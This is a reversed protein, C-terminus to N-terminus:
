NAVKKYKARFIITISGKIDIGKTVSFRSRQNSILVYSVAAVDGSPATKNRIQEKESSVVNYGLSGEVFAFKDDIDLDCVGNNGQSVFITSGEVAEQNVNFQVPPTYATGTTGVTQHDTVVARLEPNFCRLTITATDAAYLRLSCSFLITSLYLNRM